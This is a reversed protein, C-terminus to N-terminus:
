AVPKKWIPAVRKLEDILWQCAAFAESRHPAVVEVWVSPGKVHVVGLRHVLRVSEVPWRKEMEDFLLKFQHEVMRHFAEYEIAKIAREEETRRVVGLFHVVAGMDDSMKRKSALAAEDIPELTITLQRKM